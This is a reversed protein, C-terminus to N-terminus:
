GILAEQLVRVDELDKPLAHSYLLNTSEQRHEVVKMLKASDIRGKMVSNFTHRLSHWVLVRKRRIDNTIGIAALASYFRAELDEKRIPEGRAEGAFVLDEPDTYRVSQALM